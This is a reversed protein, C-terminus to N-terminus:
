GRKKAVMAVKKSKFGQYDRDWFSELHLFDCADGFAEELEGEHLRFHPNSPKRGNQPDHLFTEMILVGGDRLAEIMQPFLKRELFYSCVILDYAEVKLRHHDFDVVRADIGELGQLSEIAVPSIDLADVWFGAKALYRSHRGMGCAIDLARKGRAEKAFREVLALPTQPMVGEQHKKDWRERDEQAM